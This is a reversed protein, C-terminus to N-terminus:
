ENKDNIKFYLDVDSLLCTIEDQIDRTGDKRFRKKVLTINFDDYSMDIMSEVWFWQKLKKHWAKIKM